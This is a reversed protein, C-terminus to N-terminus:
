KYTQLEGFYFTKFLPKAWDFFWESVLHKMKLYFHFAVHKEFALPESVQKVQNYFLYHKEFKLKCIIWRPVKNFHLKEEAPHPQAQLAANRLLKWAFSGHTM